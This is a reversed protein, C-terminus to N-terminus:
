MKIEKTLLKVDVYWADSEEPLCVFGFHTPTDAYMDIDTKCDFEYGDKEYTEIVEKKAKKFEEFATVLLGCAVIKRNEGRDTVIVIYVKEM